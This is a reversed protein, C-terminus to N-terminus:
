VKLVKVIQPNGYDDPKYVFDVEEGIAKNDIQCAPSAFLGVITRERSGSTVFCEGYGDGKIQRTCYLMLSRKGTTKNTFFQYGVLKM